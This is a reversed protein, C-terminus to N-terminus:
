YPMLKIVQLFVCKQSYIPIRKFYTENNETFQWCNQLIKNLM